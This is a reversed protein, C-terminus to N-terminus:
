AHWVLVYRVGAKAAAAMRLLFGTALATLVEHGKAPDSFRHGSVFCEDFQM